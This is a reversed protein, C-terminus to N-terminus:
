LALTLVLRDLALSLPACAREIENTGMRLSRSVTVFLDQPIRPDLVLLDVRAARTSRARTHRRRVRDQVTHLKATPGFHETCEARHNHNHSHTPYILM